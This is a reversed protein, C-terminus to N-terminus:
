HLYSYFTSHFIDVCIVEVWLIKIGELFCLGELLTIYTCCEECCLRLPM